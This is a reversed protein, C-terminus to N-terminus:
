CCVLKKSLYFYNTLLFFYILISKNILYKYVTLQNDYLYHVDRKLLIYKKVETM